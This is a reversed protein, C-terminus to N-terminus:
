HGRRRRKEVAMAIAIAGMGIGVYIARIGVGLDGGFLSCFDANPVRNLAAYWIALYLGVFLKGGGSLSGFAVALATVFFLGSLAAFGRAPSDVLARLLFPLAVVGVFLSVSGLKWLVGSRPVGPQSFVLPGAGALAERCSAESITTGLLLLFAAGVLPAAAGPLVATLISLLVVVFRLISGTQWLLLADASVASFASPRAVVGALAGFDPLPVAVETAASLIPVSPEGASAAQLAPAKARRSSRRRAPDFRDFLLLSLLLPPIAWLAGLLRVAVFDPHLPLGKWPVAPVVRDRYILGTSITGPVVGPLSRVILVSVTSGGMPDFIPLRDSKGTTPDKALAMPVAAVVLALLFFWAIWGLRGSLFPVVDFLVAMAAVFAIGPLTLLVLPGLFAVSDFPGVGFRLFHYLGVPVVLSVVLGLYTVHSLFKGALYAGNPLPTAALIAGIRRERDRRISGAVLYFGVFVALFAGLFSMAAGIYAANHVSTQLRGDALQWSVSTAKGGPKPIWFYSGLLITALAVFTGASRLRTRVEAGVQAGIASWAASM